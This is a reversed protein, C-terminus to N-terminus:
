CADSKLPKWKFNKNRLSLRFKQALMRRSNSYTCFSTSRNAEWGVMEWDAEEGTSRNAAGTGTNCDSVLDVLGAGVFVLMTSGKAATGSFLKSPDSKKPPNM